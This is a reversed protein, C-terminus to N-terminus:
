EAEPSAIANRHNEKGNTRPWPSIMLRCKEILINIIEKLNAIPKNRMVAELVYSLPMRMMLKPKCVWTAMISFCHCGGNPMAM